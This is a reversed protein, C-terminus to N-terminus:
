VQKTMVLLNREGERRYHLADVSQRIMHIGLGGLTRQEIPVTLDPPPYDLPNFPRGADEIAVKLERGILAFRIHIEHLRGDDHAYAAINTLHEELALQLEHTAKPPFQHEAGLAEVADLVLARDMPSTTITLEKNIM